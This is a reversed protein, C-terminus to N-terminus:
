FFKTFMLKLHILECVLNLSVQIVESCTLYICVDKDFPYDTSFLKNHM